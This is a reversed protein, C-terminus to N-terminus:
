NFREFPIRKIQENFDTLKLNSIILDLNDNIIKPLKKSVNLEDITTPIQYDQIIQVAKAPGIGKIGEVM